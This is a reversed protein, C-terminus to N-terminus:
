KADIKKRVQWARQRERRPESTDNIYDTLPNKSQIRIWWQVFRPEHKLIRLYPFVSPPICHIAPPKNTGTNLTSCLSLIVLIKIM